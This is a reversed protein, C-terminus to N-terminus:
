KKHLFRAPVFVSQPQLGLKLKSPLSVGQLSSEMMTSGSMKKVEAKWYGM